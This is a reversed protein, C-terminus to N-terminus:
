RGGGPAAGGGNFGGIGGLGGGGPFQVNTGGSSTATQTLAVQQGATLGSTVEYYSDGKVGVQVVVTQTGSGSVVQATYRGGAGRVANVPVRLVNAASAVTVKVAITQGIRVRAPVADISVVVAYSNVSNTTTATPSISAVKGTATAGSLASWTINAVQGVKLKTADAEAFSASAQMRTLDALQVFGSSSTSNTSNGVSGNVAIVTGAMPATLVTGDVSRQDSDVTAQAASVQAKANSITATDSTSSSEARSLADKAARLNAKATTLSEQAASPDVKALVRGKQVLDGVKVDIETVTGGTIFNANATNASAVTGSASVTATVTGTSVLVTRQNATVTAPASAVAITQYAWGGGALLLAGLAVNVALAPRNPTLRLRM